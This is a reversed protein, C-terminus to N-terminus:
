GFIGGEIIVIDSDTKPPARNSLILLDSIGSSVKILGYELEKFTLNDFKIIKAGDEPNFELGKECFLEYIWGNYQYVTTSYEIKGIEEEIYLASLGHFEGVYVRGVNDSNKVKTWIYSLISHETYGERSLVTVSEYTNAGLVLVILVSIAFVCFIIM